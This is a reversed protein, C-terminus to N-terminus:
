LKWGSLVPQDQETRSLARVRVHPLRSGMEENGKRADGGCRVVRRCVFTVMLDGCPGKGRGPTVSRCLGASRAGSFGAAMKGVPAVGVAVRRCGPRVEGRLRQMESALSCTAPVSSSEHRVTAGVPPHFLGIPRARAVLKFSTGTWFLKLKASLERPPPFRYVSPVFSTQGEEAVM